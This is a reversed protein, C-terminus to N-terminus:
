ALLIEAGFNILAYAQCVRKATRARILTESGKHEFGDIEAEVAMWATDWLENLAASGDNSMVHTYGNMGPNGRYFRNDAEELAKWNQPSLPKDKREPMELIIRGYDHGITIIRDM